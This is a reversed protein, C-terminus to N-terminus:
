TMVMPSALSTTGKCFIILQFTASGSGAPNVSTISYTGAHSRSPSDFLLSNATLTVGDGSTLATNNFLWTYDGEIPSPNAELDLIIQFAEGEPTAYSTNARYM